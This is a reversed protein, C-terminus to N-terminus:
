VSMIFANDLSVTRDRNQKSTHLTYPISTEKDEKHAEDKNYDIYLRQNNYLERNPLNKLKTKIVM